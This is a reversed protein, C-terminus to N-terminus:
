INMRVGRLMAVSRFRDVILREIATYGELHRAWLVAALDHMFEVNDRNKKQHRAGVWGSKKM